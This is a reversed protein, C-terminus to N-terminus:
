MSDAYLDSVRTWGDSGKAYLVQFASEYTGDFPFDVRYKTTKVIDSFDTQKLSDKIQNLMHFLHINKVRRLMPQLKYEGLSVSGDENLNLEIDEQRVIVSGETKITYEVRFANWGVFQQLFAEYVKTKKRHELWRQHLVELRAKNAEREMVRVRKREEKLANNYMQIELRKAQRTARRAEKLAAKLETMPEKSGMNDLYHESILDGISVLWKDLDVPGNRDLSLMELPHHDRLEQRQKSTLRPHYRAYWNLVHRLSMLDRKPFDKDGEYSFLMDPHYTLTVPFGHFPGIIMLEGNTLAGQYNYTTPKSM